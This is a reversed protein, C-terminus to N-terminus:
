LEAMPLPPAPSTATSPSGKGLDESVGGVADIWASIINLVFDLDQSLLGEATPPVDITKGDDDEDKLNWSKLVKGFLTFLKRIAGIDEASFKSEDATDGLNELRSALSVIELFQGANASRAVIELGEHEEFDVLTFVKRKPKYGGLAM